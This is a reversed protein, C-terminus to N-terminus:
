DVKYKLVIFNKIVKLLARGIGVAAVCNKVKTNITNTLTLITGKTKVITHFFKYLMFINCIVVFQEIDITLEVKTELDKHIPDWHDENRIRQDLYLLIGPLFPTNSMYETNSICHTGHIKRVPDRPDHFEQLRCGFMVLRVLVQYFQDSQNHLELFM